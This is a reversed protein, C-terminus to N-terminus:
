KFPNYNQKVLNSFSLFLPQPLDTWNFWGIETSKEPEMIQAEGSEWDSLMYITIYHKGEDKYMDNTIGAFRINRIRIGSEEYVERRACEEFTENFELHGGPPCWTGEGHAGKRKLLLIRNDKIVLIGMGVKPRNDM